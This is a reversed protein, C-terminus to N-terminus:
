RIIYVRRHTGNSVPGIDNSLVYNAVEHPDEDKILGIPHWSKEGNTYEVKLELMGVLYRHDTITKLETALYTGTRNM